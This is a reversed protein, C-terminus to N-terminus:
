AERLASSAHAPRPLRYKGQQRAHHKTQSGCQLSSTDIHNRRELFRPCASWAGSRREPPGRKLWTAPPQASRARAASTPQRGPEEHPRKGVQVGHLQAEIAFVHQQELHVRPLCSVAVRLDRSKIAFQPPLEGRDRSHAARTQSFRGKDVAPVPRGIRTDVALRHVSLGGEPRDARCEKVVMCTGIRAPRSISSRSPGPTM